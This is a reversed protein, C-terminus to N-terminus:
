RKLSSRAAVGRGHSNLMKWRDLQQQVMPHSTSQMSGSARTRNELGCSKKSAFSGKPAPPSDDWPPRGNRSEVRDHKSGCQHKQHPGCCTRCDDGEALSTVADVVEVVVAQTMTLQQQQQEIQLCIHELRQKLHEMDKRISSLAAPWLAHADGQPATEPASPPRPPFDTHYAMRTLASIFAAPTEQCHM